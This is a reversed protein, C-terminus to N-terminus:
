APAHAKQFQAPLLEDIQRAPYDNIAALTHKFYKWPELGILRCTHMFSMIIAAARGGRESGIFMWNKRGIAVPRLAREALNNDIPIRGNLLYQCLRDWIKWAYHVAQGLPSKPLWANLHEELWAYIKDLVRASDEQRLGCRLAPDWSRAQDEIRYLQRIWSLVEAASEPQTPLAEFFYRRAHAWCASPVIGSDSEFLPEYGGYADSLLNGRYGKFFNLPGDKNRTLTFDYVCSKLDLGGVSVWLRATKVQGHGPSLLDVPTDDSLVVDSALVAAKLRRYLPELADACGLVWDCQTKRSLDMGYREFIAEQRYLPLHDYYKSVLVQALLGADAKAKPLVENPLAATQVGCGDCQCDGCAYKPRVYRNVYLAAPTYDLKETIERGIENMPKGCCACQRKEAPVAVVMEKRELHAPIPTRNYPRSRRPAAPKATAEACAMRASDEPPLIQDCADIVLKEFQMQNPDFRESKKGYIQKLLKEITTQQAVITAQLRRALQALEEMQRQQDALKETLAQPTMKM